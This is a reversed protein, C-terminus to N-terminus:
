SLLVSSGAHVQSGGQYPCVFMSQMKLYYLLKQLLHRLSIQRDNIVVPIMKAGHCITICTTLAPRATQSGLTTFTRCTIM